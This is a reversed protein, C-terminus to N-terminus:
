LASTKSLVPVNCWKSISQSPFTIGGFASWSWPFVNNGYEDCSQYISSRLPGNKYIHYDKDTGIMSEREKMTIGKKLKVVVTNVNDQDDDDFWPANEVKALVYKNEPPLDLKSRIDVWYHDSITTEYLIGSKKSSGLSKDEMHPMRLWIWDMEAIFQSAYVLHSAKNYSYYPPREVSYNYRTLILERDTITISMPQMDSKLSVLIGQEHGFTKALFSELQKGTIM